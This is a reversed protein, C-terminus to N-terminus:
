ILNGSIITTRCTCTHRLNVSMNVGTPPAGHITFLLHHPISPTRGTYTPYSDYSREHISRRLRQDDSACETVSSCDSLDSAISLTYSRSSFCGRHLNSM